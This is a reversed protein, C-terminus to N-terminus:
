QDTAPDFSVNAIVVENNTGVRMAPGWVGAGSTVISTMAGKKLVGCANEWLFHVVLNAPFMQGDHTHGSLDLDVGADSAESLEGPQHDMVIIPLSPDLPETIEAFTKRPLQEKKAMDKDRRGVLYFANNICVTEDELMTIGAHHLFETFRGDRVITEKQPFTFGALIKESVDHNGWCAYTGYRSKIDSLIDAVEDPDKIANYDNDFLDGAICVLDVNQSNITDVIKRVHSKTSNYGLHLDAILAIKLGPLSSSKEIVVPDQRVYVRRAHLVGYISVMLILGIAFGGFIVLNKPMTHLMAPYRYKMFFSHGTVRRIVDFTIIFLLIYELTGLWYNSIVRLFHHLPEKTILFGTLPSVAFFLYLVTVPIRFFLSHLAPSCSDAWAYLWLLIYAQFLLYVPSLFVALMLYEQHKTSLFPTYHNRYPPKHHLYLSCKLLKCHFLLFSTTIISSVPIIEM